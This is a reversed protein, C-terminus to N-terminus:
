VPESSRAVSTSPIRVRKRIARVRGSRVSNTDSLFVLGGIPGIPRRLWRRVAVTREPYARGFIASRSEVQRRITRHDPVVLLRAVVAPRWQFREDVIRPGLRVKVDHRRLTEEVSTIESKVEVVLLTSTALHWGVLDISGREGFISYSVEPVVQWAHGGLWNTAMEVLRAHQADILRELDGGRWTAIVVLEADLGALIRRVSAIPM